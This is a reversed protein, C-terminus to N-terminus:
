CRTVLRYNVPLFTAVVLAFIGLTEAVIETCVNFVYVGYWTCLM